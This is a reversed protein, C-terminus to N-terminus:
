EFYESAGTWYEFDYVNMHDKHVHRWCSLGDRNLVEFGIKNEDQEACRDKSGEPFPIDKIHPSKIDKSEDFLTGLVRQTQLDLNDDGGCLEGFPKEVRMWRSKVGPKCPPQLSLLNHVPFRLISFLNLICQISLAIAFLLCYDMSRFVSVLTDGQEVRLGNILYVYRKSYASLRAVTEEDLRLTFAPGGMDQNTCTSEVTSLQCFKENIFTRPVNSCLAGHGNHSGGSAVLSGGGDPIPSELSNDLLRVRPDHALYGADGPLVGFIPHNVALHNLNIDKCSDQHLAEEVMWEGENTKKMTGVTDLPPLDVTITSSDRYISTDVIIPINGEGFKLCNPSGSVAQFYIEGGIIPSPVDCLTLVYDKIDGEGANATAQIAMMSSADFAGNSASIDVFTDDEGRVDDTFIAHLFSALAEATSGLALTRFNGEIYIAYAKDTSAVHRIEVSRGYDRETFAFNRWRSFQECPHNPMGISRAMDFRSNLRKRFFERHSTSPVNHMQEYIWKAFTMQLHGDAYQDNPSPYNWSDLDEKRTGFTTQSLFRAVTNRDSLEHDYTLLVYEQRDSEELLPLTVQCSDGENSAHLCQYELRPYPGAVREWARGDYSRGVPALAVKAGSLDNSLKGVSETSSHTVRVLTCLRGPESLLLFIRAHAGDGNKDDIIEEAQITVPPSDFSEPCQYVRSTFAGGQLQLTRASSAKAAKALIGGGSNGTASSTSIRASVHNAVALLLPLLPLLVQSLAM